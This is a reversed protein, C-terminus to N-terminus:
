LQRDHQPHVTAPEHAPTFIEPRTNGKAALDLLAAWCTLDSRMPKTYQRPFLRSVQWPEIEEPLVELAKMVAQYVMFIWVLENGCCYDISYGGDGVKSASVRYGFLMPRIGMEWRGGESVLHSIPHDMNGPGKVFKM